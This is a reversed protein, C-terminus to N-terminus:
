LGDRKARAESLVNPDSTSLEHKAWVHYDLTSKPSPADGDRQILYTMVQNFVPGALAGGFMGASPQHLFVGVVYEPQEAPAYGIFSATFGHYGGTRADFFDATGTKGAVRYGKIRAASATGDPGTVEEIMRSLTTATKESVVRVGQQAPAPVLTGADNMTGEVLTPPMRVGKNAITQYVSTMQLATASYAQGFLRTYRSAGVWTKPDPVDGASEGPFNIPSKAGLGFKRFYDVLVKPEIREGILITGINSSKAIVGTATLEETPHNENDKFKMGARPLRNPVIVGTDPKVVGKELATAFTILKGTSGPEFADNFAGNGTHDINLRSLDNPDFSPYNAAARVKGTAVEIVVASGEKAGVEQVRKALANEAYWQLDADITLRVNRGNTVPTDVRESGPIIYGDRAREYINTGPKGSLAQNFQREVGAVPSQDSPSVFGVLPGLAMGLPYVRSATREAAIGPVGLAKVERWITPTVDKKIIVYRTNPRTFRAQLDSADMGLLPAVDSAARPAGLKERIDGVKVKYEAIAVPDAVVTFREVSEALVRGNTDLVQGRMAPTITKVSRKSMAAQQTASADFGQVRLLQFGFVAFVMLIVLLM